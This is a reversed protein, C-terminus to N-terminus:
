KDEEDLEEKVAEARIKADDALDELFDLWDEKSLNMAHRDIYEWVGQTLEQKEM